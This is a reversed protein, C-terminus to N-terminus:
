NVFVKSINELVDAKYVRIGIEPLSGLISKEDQSSLGLGEASIFILSVDYGSMKAKYLEDCLDYGLKSTIIMLNTKQTNTATFLKMVENVDIEQDFKVISLTSYLKDFEMHNSANINNLIGDYFVLNIPIWNLLCYNIVGVTTEVLKDEIVINYEETLNNKELDLVIISNTKSTSEYNKVMLENTKASLKWHIRKLSDGFAYKRVDSINTVDVNHSNLISHAESMMNTTIDINEIEIVKPNVTLFKSAAPKYTFKVLGLYDEYEISKIGIPYIGRYNCKLKYSFTKSKFPTLSFSKSDFQRAFVTNNSYFNVRIYPCLFFDENAITFSYGIEEGKVASTKEISETYKMRVYATITLSISILPLLLIIYFFMYPIKGGYFYVFILSMSFLFVFLGRNKNMISNNNKIKKNKRM